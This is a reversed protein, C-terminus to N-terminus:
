HSGEERLLVGFVGDLQEKFVPEIGLEFVLVRKGNQELIEMAGQLVDAQIKEECAPISLSVPMKNELLVSTVECALENSTNSKNQVKILAQQLAKQLAMTINLDASGYWGDKTGVWVVPFGFVEKGRGIIPAGQMTTLAELYFRCREDEIFSLQVRSVSYKQNLQQKSLEEALCKQLGRGVGEVFSEGAGVGVIDEPVVVSGDVNKNLPLTNVILSVMRSVYTEIGTLGAERRAEEHTLGSCVIDQMLEAPGDSLPDVAQVRCQALPLQKLDGEEWIHFIGLEESTLQNFYLLLKGSEVKELGVQLRSGVDEVWEASIGSTVLPHSLFSHWNGELTDLDLLFIRNKQELGIVGTVEKFLEFVIVNALLSGPTASFAPPQENKFLASHHLRRWATEWCVESDPHVLPGALGVQQLCIAPLFMKKEERCVIHLQRLKELEGEQSVYLISDFPKVIERWGEKKQPIEKLDVEPDIKRAHEVLEKLRQRNTPVEDTILVRVKTLGSEILSSVLSNLIPGSGVALVKNQRFAQFRAAGSGVLNDVFEIQSAHKKLHYDSLQHPLDQSLDRVYGNTYLVEAIEYVRDRYPGSLGNTLSGLTYEGNFMPLLKEIWQDIGSGEIRFSSLNNRFYVGRNPEPLYFTDRKVKLRMSPNLNTM